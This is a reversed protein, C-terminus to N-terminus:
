DAADASTRHPGLQGSIDLAVMASHVAKEALHKPIGLTKMLEAGERRVNVAQSNAKRARILSNASVVALRYNQGEHLHARRRREREYEVSLEPFHQYFGSVGLASEALLSKKSPLLVHEETQLLAEIVQKTSSWDTAAHNRRGIGPDKAGGINFLRPSGHEVPAQLYDVLSVAQISSLRLLTGISPFASNIAHHEAINRVFRREERTYGTDLAENIRTVSHVYLEEWGEPLSSDPNSVFEVLKLM